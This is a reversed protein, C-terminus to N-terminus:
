KSRIGSLATYIGLGLFASGTLYRGFVRVSSAKTLLPAVSSATFAYISDTAAATAVFLSGLTLSQLLPLSQTHIFQPLFAAFFVATKPNFLAVIFGDRFIVLLTSPKPKPTELSPQSSRLAKIGLYILYLAGVYKVFMFAATSIAFLAALGISAGIANGLNGLAVGAVSAFGFSRGQLLSRTVIYFVGPGPTIALVFSAVLFTSLLPWSPLLNNMRSIGNVGLTQTSPRWLLSAKQRGV